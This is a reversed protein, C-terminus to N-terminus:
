QRSNNNLDQAKKKFEESKELNAEVGDGVKYMRSVNACAWPHGLTCTKMSLDFAKSLDKAVGNKGTLYISSLNFCGMRHGQDCAKTFHELAKSMDVEIKSEAHGSQYIMGANNCAGVSNGACGKEFYKLAEM